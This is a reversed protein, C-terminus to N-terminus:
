TGEVSGRRMRTAGIMLVGTFLMLLTAIATILPEIGSRVSDYIAKPLTVVQGGGLFNVLVAEDFTTVFALVIAAAISPALLRLTIGLTARGRTAGLSMAVLELDAPIRRLGAGVILIVFPLALMSDALMVGWVTGVMHTQVYFTYLAVAYAVGPLVLPAVGLVRLISKGRMRSRELALVAPVGVATALLAAPLSVVFSKGIAGLWHDSAFLHSYQRTGWHHPPFTMNSENSFSLVVVLVAPVLMFVVVAAKVVWEAGYVARTLPTREIARASM